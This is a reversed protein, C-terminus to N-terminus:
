KKRDDLDIEAEIEALADQLAERVCYDYGHEIYSLQGVTGDPDIFSLQFSHIELEELEPFSDLLFQIAPLRHPKFKVLKINTKKEKKKKTM